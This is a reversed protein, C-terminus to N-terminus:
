PHSYSSTGSVQCGSLGTPHLLFLCDASSAVARLMKLNEVM